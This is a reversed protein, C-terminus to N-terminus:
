VQVILLLPASAGLTTNLCTIGVPRRNVDAVVVRPVQVVGGTLEKPPVTVQVAGVKAFAPVMVTVTLTIMLATPVKLLVPVTENSPVSALGPLSDKVTFITPCYSRLLPSVQIVVPYAQVPLNCVILRPNLPGLRPGCKELLM